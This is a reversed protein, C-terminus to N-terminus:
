VSHIEEALVRAAAECAERTVDKHTVLRIRDPGLNFFKVCRAACRAVLDSAALGPKTVRFYVMNTQVTPLDIEIGPVECLREALLKANAHDEALRDIMQDLAVLGCAALVCSQRM